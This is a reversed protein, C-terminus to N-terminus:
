EDRSWRIVNAGWTLGAGFGVTAIVDGRKIRGQSLAESLAIPVSAASTNGYRDVNVFVKAESVGLREAVANIIRLNAQHMVLLDIDAPTLGAKRLTEEIVEPILRLAFKYVDSGKMSIRNLKQDIGSQTLPTKIGGAPLWISELGSGDAGLVSSLVGEGVPCASIVAAGAGDGFLICTSRDEWNVQKTLTDVGVVLVNQLAGSQIFGAATAVGYCFGSCAASLDFAGAHRAGIRNQIICATSPWIYDGTATACIVLDIDSPNLGANEIARLAAETGLDSSVTTEDTIRREKIGTRSVIWEDTTEVIGTLDANTLVRDPVSMGVGIIGANISRNGSFASDPTTSAISNSAM